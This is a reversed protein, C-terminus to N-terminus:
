RSSLGGRRSSSNRWATSAPARPRGVRSRRLPEGRAERFRDTVACLWRGGGGRGEREPSLCREARVPDPLPLRHRPLRLGGPLRRRRSRPEQACQRARVRGGMRLARAAGQRASGSLADHSAAANALAGAPDHLLRACAAEGMYITPLFAHPHGPQYFREVKGAHADDIAAASATSTAISCTSMCAAWWWGAAATSGRGGAASRRSPPRPAAITSPPRSRAWRRLTSRGTQRSLLPRYRLRFAATATGRARSGGLAIAEVGPVARWRRSWAACCPKTTQM